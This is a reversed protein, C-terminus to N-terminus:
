HVEKLIYLETNNEYLCKEAEPADALIQEMCTVCSEVQDNLLLYRYHRAQQIEWRAHALRAMVKEPKTDGRESLRRHLEAMSPPAIFVLVAEPCRETVQRAGNPDVDLLVTGGQDMVARIPEAPTGYYDGSAYHNYELLQERAVLGKFEDESIFHYDKGPVEGPRPERTTASVSFMIEPHSDLIRHIVTSKGVGSPGSVVILKGRSM